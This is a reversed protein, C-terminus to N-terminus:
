KVKKKIRPKTSFFSVCVSTFMAIILCILLDNDAM